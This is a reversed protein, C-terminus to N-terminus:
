VEFLLFKCSEIEISFNQRDLPFSRLDMKCALTSTFRMGYAIYGDSYLKLMKNVETVDHLYSSKDNALFTDPVWIKQSFDGGLTISENRHNPLWALREDKWYQYLYMTM